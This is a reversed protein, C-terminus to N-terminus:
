VICGLYCNLPPQILLGRTEVLGTKQGRLCQQVFYISRLMIIHLFFVFFRTIISINHRFYFSGQLIIIRAILKVRTRSLGSIGQRQLCHLYLDTPKQLLWSIQIQVTQWESHSNIDVIQILYGSQSFHAHCRLKNLLVLTLCINLKLRWIGFIVFLVPFAM